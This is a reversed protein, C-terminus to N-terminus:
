KISYGGLQNELCTGETEWADLRFAAFGWGLGLGSWGVVLYVTCVTHTPYRSSFDGGVGIWGGQYVSTHRHTPHRSSLLSITCLVYNRHMITFLAEM